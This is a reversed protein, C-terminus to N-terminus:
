STTGRRVLPLRSIPPAHNLSAHPRQYNYQQLWPPLALSREASSAYDFGYAWERLATQIFREAKGNTRPTYPRTFLHRLQLQHLCHCFLRSRYCGGNDTMVRRIAIGLSAYYDLAARLFALASRQSQDPLLRAFAIRSHDDIAVHLYEWGAGSSRRSGLPHHRFQPRHFRGLAKIDLHLLGGPHPYEYRRPAPAPDLSRLRHLGLRRLIRSVTSRSLGTHQAIRFGPWRQRRLAEVQAQLLPVTRRPSTHPRSSRDAMADRGRQRYRRGWKAATKPSVHFAAAAAKWTLGERLVRQALAERSFPTLRANQHIDM